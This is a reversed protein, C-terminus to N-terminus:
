PQGPYQSIVQFGAQTLAQALAPALALDGIAQAPHTAIYVTVPCRGLEVASFERLLLSAAWRPSVVVLLQSGESLRGQLRGLAERLPLSDPMAGALARHIARTDRLPEAQQPLYVRLRAGAEEAAECLGAVVRLAQEAPADPRALENSSPIDTVVHLLPSGSQQFQQIVLEGSRASARWNVRGLPEGAVYHRLNGLEFSQGLRRTVQNGVPDHAASLDAPLFVQEAKPLVLVAVDQLAITRRAIVLGLPFGSALVVKALRYDGRCPFIIQHGLASRQRARILALTHSLVITRPGWQWHTEVDVMFAPWWARREIVLQVGCAQGEVAESSGSAFVQMSRLSLWPLLLGLASLTALFLFMGFVTPDHRNLASLLLVGSLALLVRSKSLWREM